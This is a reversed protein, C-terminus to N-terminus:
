SNLIKSKVQEFLNKKSEPPNSLKDTPVMDENYNTNLGADVAGKLSAFLLSGKTAPHLGIDLVFDKINKKKAQKAAYLGVLYATLVNRKSDWNFLKQLTNSHVTIETTDGKPSYNVFQVIVSKNTKRVVMRPKNSKILALRKNYDTRGERRRRFAVRYTPGTAKAM